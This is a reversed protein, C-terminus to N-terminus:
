AQSWRAVCVGTFYAVFIAIYPYDFRLRCAIFLAVVGFAMKLFFIGPRRKM